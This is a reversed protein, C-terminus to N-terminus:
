RGCVWGSQVSVGGVGSVGWVQSWRLARIENVLARLETEVTPDEELLDGVRVQWAKELDARLTELERGTASQLQQRTQDFRAEVIRAQRPNMRGFLRAFKGRAAEWADTAAAAVVTNAALSALAILAETGM